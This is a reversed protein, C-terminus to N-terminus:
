FDNLEYDGGSDGMMDGNDYDNKNAPDYESYQNQNGNQPHQFHEYTAVGAAGLATAGVMSPFWYGGAPSNGSNNGMMQPQQQPHYQSPGNPHYYNSHQTPQQQFNPEYNYQQQHPYYPSAPPLMGAGDRNTSKKPRAEYSVHFEQVNGPPVQAALIRGPEDPVSVHLTTGAETGTPVRVLLLKHGKPSQARNKPKSVLTSPAQLPPPPMAKFSEPLSTDSVRPTYAIHFSQTGHPIQASVTRDEGPIEVQMMSGAPMGPPVHVLLLKQITKPSSTAADLRPQAREIQANVPQGSVRPAQPPSSSAPASPAVEQKPSIPVQQSEALVHNPTDPVPPSSALEDQIPIRNQDQPQHKIKRSTAPPADREQITETISNNDHNQHVDDPIPTLWRDLANVFTPKSEPNSANEIVRVNEVIAAKKTKNEPLKQDIPTTWDELANAFIPQVGVAPPQMPHSRLVDPHFAKSLRVLFTDGCKLGPPITARVLRSGDPALVAITQGAGVGEPVIV